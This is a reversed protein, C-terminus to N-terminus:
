ELFEGCKTSGTPENGCGCLGQGSGSRDLGHGCRASRFIWKLIIRKFVWRKVTFSKNAHLSMLLVAPLSYPSTHQPKFHHLKHFIHAPTRAMPETCNQIASQFTVTRSQTIYLESTSIKKNLVTFEVSEIQERFYISEYKAREDKMNTHEVTQESTVCKEV